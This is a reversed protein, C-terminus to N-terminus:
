LVAFIGQNRIMQEIAQDVSISPIKCEIVGFPIGNIFLVLDPRVNHKGDESEISFEEFVYFDNNDMNDWDIYKLTFSRKTGDELNETYSKGLMLTEYIKENTKVLGDTLLEDIDNLAANINKDDFKYVKGKYTYSNIAILKERLIPKLLVNYQNTRLGVDQPNIYKYGLNKLVEIAPKQSINKEDFEQKVM